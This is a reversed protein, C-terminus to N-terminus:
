EAMLKGSAPSFNRSGKEERENNATSAAARDLNNTRSAVFQQWLEPLSGDAFKRQELFQQERELPKEAEAISNNQAFTSLVNSFLFYLALFTRM